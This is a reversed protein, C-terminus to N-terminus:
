SVFGVFSLGGSYALLEGPLLSIRWTKYLEM